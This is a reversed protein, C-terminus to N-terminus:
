HEAEAKLVFRKYIEVTACENHIKLESYVERHVREEYHTGLASNRWGEDIKGQVTAIWPFFEDICKKAVRPDIPVAFRRRGLLLARLIVEAVPAPLEKELIPQGDCNEVLLCVVSLFRDLQVTLSEAGFEVDWM